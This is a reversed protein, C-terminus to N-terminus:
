PFSARVTACISVQTALEPDDMMYELPTRAIRKRPKADVICDLSLSAIRKRSEADMMCELPMSAIRKRPEPDSASRVGLLEKMEGLSVDIDQSPSSTVYFRQDTAAVTSVNASGERRMSVMSTMTTAM